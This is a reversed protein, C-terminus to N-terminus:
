SVIELKTPSNLLSVQIPPTALSKSAREARASEGSITVAIELGAGSIKARPRDASAKAKSLAFTLAVSCV